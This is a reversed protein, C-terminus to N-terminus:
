KFFKTYRPLGDRDIYRLLYLGSPTELNVRYEQGNCIGSHILSGRLDFVEITTSEFDSRLYLENEVIPNPIVKIVGGTELLAQSESRNKIIREGECDPKPIYVIKYCEPASTCVSATCYPTDCLFVELYVDTDFPGVSNLGNGLSGNQGVPTSSFTGSTNEEMIRYCAYEGVGIGSVDLVVSYDDVGRQCLVDYTYIELKCPEQQNCPKPPCITLLSNCMPDLYQDWLIFNVCGNNLSLNSYTHNMDFDLDLNSSGRSISFKDDNDSPDDDEVFIDFSWTNNTANCTVNTIEVERFLNCGSCYDPAEIEEFYTCNGINIELIWDGDQILFPGLNIFQNGSGDAIVHSGSENDYPDRLSRILEWDLSDSDFLELEVYYYDDSINPDNPDSSNSSCDTVFLTYNSNIYNSKCIEISNSLIVPFTFQDTSFEIDSYIELCDEQGFNSLHFDICFTKTSTDITVNSTSYGPITIETPSWDGCVTPLTYSGCLAAALGDCSRYNIGVTGDYPADYIKTSGLASSDCEECMGDIYGYGFHGGCGCDGVTIEILAISDIFEKPIKFRHCTWDLVDVSEFTCYPDNVIEECKILDADFCLENVPDRDCEINLFPQSNVHGSPNELAVAYWVTFDRTEETVKFRKTIKNVGLSGACSNGNPITHGYQNNIKLSKNGFMVRDIGVLPDLGSTVVEFEKLSPLTNVDEWIVPNNAIDVLSCSDSGNRYTTREGEYFMFDDEFGGNDCILTDAQASINSPFSM